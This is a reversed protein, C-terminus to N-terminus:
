KGITVIVTTLSIVNYLRTFPSFHKWVAYQRWKWLQLGSFPDALEALVTGTQSCLMVNWLFKIKINVVM